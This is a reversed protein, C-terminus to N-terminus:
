TKIAVLFSFKILEYLRYWFYLASTDSSVSLSFSKAIKPSVIILPAKMIFFPAFRINLPRKIGFVLVLLDIQKSSKALFAMLDIDTLEGCIINSDSSTM